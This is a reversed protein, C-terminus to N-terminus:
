DVAKKMYGKDTLVTEIATLREEITLEENTEFSARQEVNTKKWSKLKRNKDLTLALPFETIQNYQEKTIVIENPLLHEENYKISTATGLGDANVFITYIPIM